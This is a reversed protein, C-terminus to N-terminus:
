MFTTIPCGGPSASMTISGISLTVTHTTLQATAACHDFPQGLQIPIFGTPSSASHNTVSLLDAAYSVAVTAPCNLQLELKSNFGRVLGMQAFLDSIYKLPIVVAMIHVNYAQAADALDCYSKHTTRFNVANAYVDKFASFLSDYTNYNRIKRNNLVDTTPSTSGNSTQTGVLEGFTSDLSWESPDEYGWGLSPDLVDIDAKTCETLMKFHIYQFLRPSVRELLTQNSMSFSVSDIISMFSSKLGAYLCQYQGARFNGVAGTAPSTVATSVNLKLPIVLEARPVDIFGDSSALQSTTFGTSYNEPGQLDPIQINQQRRYTLPTPPVDEM